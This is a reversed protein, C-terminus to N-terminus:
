KRDKPCNRVARQTAELEREEKAEELRLESGETGMTELLDTYEDRGRLFSSLLGSDDESVTLSGKAETTVTSKLDFFDFSM